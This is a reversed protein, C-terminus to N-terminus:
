GDRYKCIPGITGGMYLTIFRTELGMYRAARRRLGICKNLRVCQHFKIDELDILKSRTQKNNM